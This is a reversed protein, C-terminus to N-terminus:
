VIKSNTNLAQRVAVRSEDNKRGYNGENTLVLQVVQLSLAL